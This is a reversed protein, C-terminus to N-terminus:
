YIKFGLEKCIETNHKPMTTKIGSIAFNHLMDFYALDAITSRMCDVSKSYGSVLAAKTGRKFRLVDEESSLTECSSFHVIRGDFAGDAMEALEDLTVLNNKASRGEGELKICSEGGHFPFYVVDYDSFSKLKLRKLFYELESRTAVRRYIYKSDYANELIKLIPESTFPDQLRVKSFYWETELCFYNHPYKNMYM